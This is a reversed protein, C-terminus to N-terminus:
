ERPSAFLIRLARVLGILLGLGGGVMVGFAGTWFVQSDLEQLTSGTAFMGYALGLVAGIFGWGLVARVVALFGMLLRWAFSAGGAAIGPLHRAVEDRLVPGPPPGAEVSGRPRRRRAEFPVDVTPSPRPPLEEFPVDVPPRERPRPAERRPPPTRPSPEPRSPPPAARAADEERACLPCTRDPLWGAEAEHRTCWFGLGGGCAECPGTHALSHETGCVTCREVVRSM